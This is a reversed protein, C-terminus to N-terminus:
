PRLIIIEGDEEKIITSSRRHPLRGGDLYFDPQFKRGAFQKKVAVVSYCTPQGSLNASTAVIPRRLQRSLERAVSYAPVRVAITDARRAGTAVGIGARMPIAVTLPGPWYKKALKKMLPSLIAYKEVMKLDAAILPLSKGSNRGKIAFIRRVAKANTADAALGYATETPFVVVGGAQLLEVSNKVLNLKIKKLGPM